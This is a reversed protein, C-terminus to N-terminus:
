MICDGGDVQLVQIHLVVKMQIWWNNLLFNIVIKKLIWWQIYTSLQSSNRYICFHLVHKYFSYVHAQVQRLILIAFHLFTEDTMECICIVSESEYEFKNELKCIYILSAPHNYLYEMCGIFRQRTFWKTNETRKFRIWAFINTLDRRMWMQCVNVAHMFTM